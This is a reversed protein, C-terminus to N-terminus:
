LGHMIAKPVRKSRPQFRSRRCLIDAKTAENWHIKSPIFILKSIEGPCNSTELWSGSSQVVSVESELQIDYECYAGGHLLDQEFYVSFCGYVQAPRPLSYIALNYQSILVDMSLIHTDRFIELTRM